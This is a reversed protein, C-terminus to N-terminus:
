PTLSASSAVARTVSFWRRATLNPRRWSQSTTEALWFMIRNTQARGGLRDAAEFFLVDQAAAATALGAPGGGIVIVPLEVTPLLWPEDAPGRVTGAAGTDGPLVELYEVPLQPTSCAILLWLVPHFGHLFACKSAHGYM